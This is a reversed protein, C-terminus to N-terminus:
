NGMLLKVVIMSAIAGLFILAKIRDRREDSPPDAPRDAPLPSAGDREKSM